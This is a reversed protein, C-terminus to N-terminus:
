RGEAFDRSSPRAGAHFEAMASAWGGPWVPDNPQPCRSFLGVWLFRFGLLSASRIRRRNPNAWLNPRVTLSFNTLNWPWPVTRWNRHAIGHSDNRGTGSLEKKFGEVVLYPELNRHAAPGVTDASLGVVHGCDQPGATARAPAGSEPSKTKGTLPM